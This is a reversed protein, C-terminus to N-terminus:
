REQKGSSRLLRLLEFYNQLYKILTEPVLRVTKTTPFTNHDLGDEQKKFEFAPIVLAMEGAKLKQFIDAEGQLEGNGEGKILRKIKGRFDTCIWFDVDLMMVLETRSYFKAVNRWM